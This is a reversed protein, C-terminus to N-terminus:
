LTMLRPMESSNVAKSRLRMMCSIPATNKVLRATASFRPSRVRSTVGSAFPCNTKAASYRPRPAETAPYRSNL